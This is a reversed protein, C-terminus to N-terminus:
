RCARCPSTRRRRRRRRRRPAGGAGAGRGRRRGRRLRRHEARRGDGIGPRLNMDSVKVDPPPVCASRRQRQDALLRLRHADRSRVLRRALQTGGTASPLVLTASRVTPRASRGAAHLDARDQVERGAEGGRRAAGAHLRDPRRDVRGASRLGAAQDPVAADALVVRRARRRERGAARRDALDAPRHDRDFVYLFAQKTPQAVAKITRGNVTIDALIPACPIDM